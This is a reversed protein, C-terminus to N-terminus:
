EDGESLNFTDAFVLNARRLVDFGPYSFAGTGKTGSPWLLYLQEPNKVPLSKLVVADMVSFIASNAGIGLALSLVVVCTFGPSRRMLRLAYAADRWIREIWAFRWTARTDETTRLVSGFARQAADRAEAASLGAERQEDAEQDLHARLERDLDEDRDRRSM